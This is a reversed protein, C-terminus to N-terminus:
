SFIVTKKLMKKSAKEFRLMLLVAVTALGSLFGIWIGIEQFGLVFAAVYGVLITILGHCFLVIITPIKVDVIARLAGLALVQTGDFLQFMAAIMLLHTAVMIVDADKTHLSALFERFVVFFIASLSMFLLTLHFGAYVATRAQHIQKAGVFESAKITVATSFGSSMLFTLAVLGLAIQHAALETSGVWGVMITGFAFAFVEIVTQVATPFSITFIEHLLKKELTREFFSILFPRFRPSFLVYAWMGVAQFVRALLTAIGAGILGMPEFGGHGYILLYNLWINLLNSLITFVMAPQTSAVGEAFQKATIFLLHPIFSYTLLRFYPYAEKLVAEDQGFRYLNMEVIFLIGTLAIIMLLNLFLSHRFLRGIKNHDKMGFANGVLSTLGLAFGWGFLVITHYVSTSFAAAALLVKGVHGVMANDVIGTLTQGVQSIIVPIALKLNERYHPFYKRFGM